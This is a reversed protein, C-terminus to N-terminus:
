TTGQISVNYQKSPIDIGFGPFLQASFKIAVQWIQLHRLFLVPLVMMPATKSRIDRIALVGILM